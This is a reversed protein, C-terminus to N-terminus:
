NTLIYNLVEGIEMVPTQFRKEILAPIDSVALKSVLTDVQSKRLGQGLMTLGKEASVPVIQISYMARPDNPSHSDFANHHVSAIKWTATQKM